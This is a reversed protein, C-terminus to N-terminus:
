QPNVGGHEENQAHDVPQGAQGIGFVIGNTLFQFLLVQRLTDAERAAMSRGLM